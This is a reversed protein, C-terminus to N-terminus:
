VSFLAYRGCAVFGAMVAGAAAYVLPNTPVLRLSRRAFMGALALDELAIVAASIPTLIPEWNLAAPIILLVACIVELVGLGQWAALPLFSNAPLRILDESKFIKYTGGVLCFLALAVQVVWLLINM